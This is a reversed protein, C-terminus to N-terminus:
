LCIAFTNGTASSRLIFFTCDNEPVTPHPDCVDGLGDNDVDAQDTNADVPCNDAGDNVTDGDTDAELPNTGAQFEDLNSLGDGDPDDAADDVLPDTGNALEWTDPLGDNDDDPDYIDFIGDLDTDILAEACASFESTASNGGKITTATATIFEGPSFLGSLNVTQGTQNVDAAGLTVEGIKRQGEGHGSADCNSNAFFEITYDVSADSILQYAIVGTYANVGGLEPFNQLGNAGTDSDPAGDNASVGDKGLDIGLGGNDFIANASFTMNHIDTNMSIGNGGNHAITNTSVFSSAVSDDIAVVKAGAAALQATKGGPAACLDLVLGPRAGESVRGESDLGEAVLDAV